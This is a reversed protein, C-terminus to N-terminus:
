ELIHIPCYQSLLKDDWKIYVFLIALTAGIESLVKKSEEDTFTLVKNATTIRLQISKYKIKGKIYSQQEINLAILDKSKLQLYATQVRRRRRCILNIRLFGYITILLQVYNSGFDVRYFFLMTNKFLGIERILNTLCTQEKTETM